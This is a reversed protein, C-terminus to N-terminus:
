STVLVFITIFKPHIKFTTLVLFRQRKLSIIEPLVPTLKRRLDNAFFGDPQISVQRWIFALNHLFRGLFRKPPVFFSNKLRFQSVKQIQCPQQQKNKFPLLGHRDVLFM